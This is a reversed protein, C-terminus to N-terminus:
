KFLKAAMPIVQAAIVLALMWKVLTLEGTLKAEMGDMLRELRDIDRKTALQSDLAEAFAGQLAEAEAKAQGEPIGAAKLREVFKLTDFTITAM